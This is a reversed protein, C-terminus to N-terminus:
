KSKLVSINSTIKYLAPRMSLVRTHTEGGFSDTYCMKASYLITHGFLYALHLYKCNQVLSYSIVLFAGSLQGAQVCVANCTCRSDMRKLLPKSSLHLPAFCYMSTWNLIM